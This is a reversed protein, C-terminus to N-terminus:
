LNHNRRSDYYASGQWINRVKMEQHLTNLVKRKDSSWLPSILLNKPGDGTVRHIIIDPSLIELCSIVLNLYQAMSLTSFTNNFYDKALDTGKLVHLLQIKIGQIDCANLYNITDLMMTPTEGPLGLIIHVIVPITHAHLSQLCADFCRITYGRRIYNATSDHITQLGLEIWIFKTPFERKLDDLLSCINESICDPRTAISIGIISTDSLAAHYIESLYPLPAYTNTYAQFYAIFRCGVKKPHLQKKGIVRGLFLEKGKAIQRQITDGTVQIHSISFDGSGGSSCFICGRTDLTGDRNPCTMGADIAIKYIKQGYKNKCYSDLSHYHKGHWNGVCELNTDRM